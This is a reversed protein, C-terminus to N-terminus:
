PRWDGGSRSRHLVYLALRKEKFIRLFVQKCSLLTRCDRLRVALYEVQLLREILRAKVLIRQYNRRRLEQIVRLVAELISYRRHLRRRNYASLVSRRVDAVVVCMDNRLRVDIMFASCVVRHRM